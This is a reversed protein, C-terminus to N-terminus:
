RECQDYSADSGTFSPSELCPIYYLKGNIRTHDVLLKREELEAQLKEQLKEQLKKAEQEAAAIIRQQKKREDIEAQLKDEIVKRAEYAEMAPPYNHNLWYCSNWDDFWECKEMAGGIEFVKSKWEVLCAQQELYAQDIKYYSETKLGQEYINNCNDHFNLLYDRNSSTFASIEAEHQEEPTLVIKEPEFVSLFLGIMVIAIIGIIIVTDGLDSFGWRSRLM